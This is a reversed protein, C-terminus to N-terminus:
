DRALKFGTRRVLPMSYQTYLAMVAALAIAIGLVYGISMWPLSREVHRHKLCCGMLMTAQNLQAAVYKSFQQAKLYLKSSVKHAKDLKLFYLLEACDSLVDDIQDLDRHLQKVVVMPLPHHDDDAQFILESWWVDNAKRAVAGFPDYAHEMAFREVKEMAGFIAVLAADVRSVISNRLVQDVFVQSLDTTRSFPGFVHHGPAWAFNQLAAEHTQSYRSYPPVLGGLAQLIGAMTPRTPDSLDIAVKHDNLFYPVQYKHNSQLVIVCEDTSYVASSDAFLLRESADTESWHELSFIYVPLVRTGLARRRWQEDATGHVHLEASEAGPFHKQNDREANGNMDKLYEPFYTAALESSHSIMGSALVDTSAKLAEVLIPGDVYRKESLVFRGDKNAHVTNSRIAKSLATAIQAHQWLPYEHYVPRISQGPLSVQELMKALKTQDLHHLRQRDLLSYEDHDRFIMIPMLVEVSFDLEEFSVDPAFVNQIASVVLQVLHAAVVWRHMQSNPDMTAIKPVSNETFTGEGPRSSGFTAPGASADLVVLRHSGIWTQFAGEGDYSYRYVFKATPKAAADDPQVRHRAPNLIFISYSANAALSEAQMKFRQPGKMHEMFTRELEKEVEGRVEVSYHTEHDSGRIHVMGEKIRKEIKTLYHQHVDIVNYWMEYQLHLKEKSQLVSPQRHPFCDTLLTELDNRELKFGNEGSGDFGALLVNIIMPVALPNESKDFMVPRQSRQLERLRTRFPLEGIVLHVSLAAVLVRAAM